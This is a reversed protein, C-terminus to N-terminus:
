QTARFGDVYSSIAFGGAAGCVRVRSTDFEELEFGASDNHFAPQRFAAGVLNWQTCILVIRQGPQAGLVRGEIAELQDPSGESSAPVRSFEISPEGRGQPARCGSLGLCALVAIIVSFTLQSLHGFRRM